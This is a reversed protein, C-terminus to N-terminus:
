APVGSQTKSAPLSYSGSAHAVPEKKGESYILVDGMALRKGLKLLRAEAILDAPHPRNLFHFNLNSTVALPEMGIRTLVALYLATDALTMMVPGSVTGGARVFSESYHMRLRATGDGIEEVRFPMTASLPITARILDEFEEATIRPAM